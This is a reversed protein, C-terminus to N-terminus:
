RRGTYTGFPPPSWQVSPHQCTYILAPAAKAPRPPDVAATRMHWTLDEYNFKLSLFMIALLICLNFTSTFCLVFDDIVIGYLLWLGSSFAFLINMMFAYDMGVSRASAACAAAPRQVPYLFYFEIPFILLSYLLIVIRLFIVWSDM